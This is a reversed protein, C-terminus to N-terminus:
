LSLSYTLVGDEITSEIPLGSRHLLRAMRENQPLVSADFRRLGLERACHILQRLLLRGIGRGQLADVVTIAAECHDPRHQKRVFRGVGAPRLGTDTELEAVLAVHTSLDVETFYTLEDPTLDRKVNFFRDRISAPSLQLFEEHLRDRDGPRIPRVHLISGDPLRERARYSPSIKQM